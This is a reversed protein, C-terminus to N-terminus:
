KGQVLAAHLCRGDYMGELIMKASSQQTQILLKQLNLAIIMLIIERM